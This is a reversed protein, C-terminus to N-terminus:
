ACLIEKGYKGYQKNNLNKERKQFGDLRDWRHSSKRIMKSWKPRVELFKCQSNQSNQSNKAALARNNRLKRVKRM